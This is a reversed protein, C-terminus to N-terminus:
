FGKIKSGFLMNQYCRLCGPFISGPCEHIAHRFKNAREGNYIERFSQEKINGLPYETYDACFLVDGNYNVNAQTWPVICRNRVPVELKEYYVQTKEPNLAPVTISLYGYDTNHITHLTECLEKADIGKNYGTNYGGLCYVDTDLKEKFFETQRALIEDNTYTGLNYIHWDIKFDKCAVALDKLYKYNLNTVTTVIGMTPFKSNQKKKERNIAEFGRVVKDYSGAGRIEDNVDKFADLSVFIVNWQDKVIREAYKELLTGNTNVSCFSGSKQIYDVLDCLHPYLFPEGGWLYYVPRKFKLEDVMKKYTELPLVCKSEDAAYKGKLVGKVGRQGCMVCRLNCLPTLKLYILSFNKLHDYGEFHRKKLRAKFLNKFGHALRLAMKPSTMFLKPVVSFNRKM